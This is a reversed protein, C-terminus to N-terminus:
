CPKVEVHSRQVETERAVREVFFCATRHGHGDDELPPTVARCRAQAFRCRNSFVCGRDAPGEDLLADVPTNTRAALAPDPIPIAELLLNTYPHRPHFIVRETPGDEVVVGYFM